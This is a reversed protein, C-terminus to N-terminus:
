VVQSAFSYPEYNRPVPLPRSSLRLKRTDKDEDVVFKPVRRQAHTYYQKDSEIQTVAGYLFRGCNPATVLAGDEPFYPTTNGSADEYTQFVSWINLSFGGFNLKGLWAVGPYQITPALSGIEIRRNDLLKQVLELKMIEASATSGLVLDEAALGRMALSQCMATVDGFFDGGSANWKTSVTYLHDSASGEYFKLYRTRGVTASDVYEVVDVGNKTLVQVCMWEERRLIRRDLDTLDRMHLAQAREEESRNSFLAEGFGRQRLQDLTLLRSPAVKPPIFELAENADRAVPIDGQEDAVFVAMKQNGGEYELLVKQSNFIDAEGSPFYRDRFFSQNPTIESVMGIMTYTDFLNINNPM